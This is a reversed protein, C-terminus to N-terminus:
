SSKLRPLRPIPRSLVDNSMLKRGRTKRATGLYEIEGGTFPRTEHAPAADDSDVQLSASHGLACASSHGESPILANSRAVRLEPVETSRLNVARAFTLVQADSVSSHVSGGCGAAILAMTIVVLSSTAARLMFRIM